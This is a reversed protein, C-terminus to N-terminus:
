IHKVAWRSAEKECQRSLHGPVAFGRTVEAEPYLRKLDMTSNGLGSGESTCFPLIKKGKLDCTDLFTFVCMPCTGWWNPYGVFINEYGTVDATNKIRPRAGAEKEKKAEETCATYNRSYPKVTEIEFLDRGVAKAIFEAVRETNGKEISKVGEPFYNEGKRSYYVVLNKSM